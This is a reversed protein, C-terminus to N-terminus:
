YSYRSTIGFERVTAKESGEGCDDSVTTMDDSHV